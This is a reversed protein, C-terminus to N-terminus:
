YAHSQLHRLSFLFGWAVCPAVTALPLHCPAPLLSIASWVMDEQSQCNDAIRFRVGTVVLSSKYQNYLM